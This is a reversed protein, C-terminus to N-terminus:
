TPVKRGKVPGFLRMTGVSACLACSLAANPMAPSTALKNACGGVHRQAAIAPLEADASRGFWGRWAVARFSAAGRM